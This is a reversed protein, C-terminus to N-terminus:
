FSIKWNIEFTDNKTLSVDSQLKNSVGDIMLFEPTGSHPILKPKLVVKQDTKIQIKLHVKGEIYQAVLPILINSQVLFDLDLFKLKKSDGSILYNTDNVQLDMQFEPNLKFVSPASKNQRTLTSVLFSIQETVTKQLLLNYTGLANAKSVISQPPLTLRISDLLPQALMHEMGYHDALSKILASEVIHSAASITKVPSSQSFDAHITRQNQKEDITLRLKVTETASVRSTVENQGLARTNFLQEFVKSVTKFYNQLNKPLSIEHLYTHMHALHEIAKWSSEFFDTLAKANPNQDVLFPWITKNRFGKEFLPTPPIKFHIQCNEKVFVLYVKETLRTTFFINQFNLGGNEPDNLIFLDGIQPNLYKKMIQFVVLRSTTSQLHDTDASAILKGEDTILSASKFPSLIIKLIQQTEHFNV